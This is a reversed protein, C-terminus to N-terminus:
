LFEPKENTCIAAHDAFYVHASFFKCVSKCFYFTDDAYKRHRSVNVQHEFNNRPVHLM